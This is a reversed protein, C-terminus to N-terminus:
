GRSNRKGVVGSFGNREVWTIQGEIGEAKWFDEVTDFYWWGIENRRGKM